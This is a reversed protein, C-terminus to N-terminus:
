CTIEAALCISFAPVSSADDTRSPLRAFFPTSGPEFGTLNGMRAASAPISGRDSAARPALRASTAVYISGDASAVLEVSGYSLSRTSGATIHPGLRCAVAVVSDAGVCHEPAAGHLVGTPRWCHSECVLLGTAAVSSSPLAM